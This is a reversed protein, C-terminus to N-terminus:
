AATEQRTIHAIEWGSWEYEGRAAEHRCQFSECRQHAEKAVIVVGCDRCRLVVEQIQPQPTM